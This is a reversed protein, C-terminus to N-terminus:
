TANGTRDSGGAAMPAFVMGVLDPIHANATWGGDIRMECGTIFGSEDSLLYAGMTSIDDYEGWRTLQGDRVLPGAVPHGEVATALETSLLIGPLMSNVRIKAPGYDVAMQRTLASMAGKCATYGPLKPIGAVAAISTINIISGGGGRVMVPIAYKCAWVSGYLGVRLIRDFADSDIEAVGREAAGMEDMPMANNVLGDITGFADVAGAILERVSDEDSADCRLYRARGGAAGIDSEVERGHEASRGSVVVAAGEAAFRRAMAAGLGKTSGTVVVVKGALRRPTGEM